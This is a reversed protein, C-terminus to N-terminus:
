GFIPGLGLRAERRSCSAHAHFASAGSPSTPQSGGGLSSGRWPGPWAMNQFRLKFAGTEFRVHASVRSFQEQPKPYRSQDDDSKEDEDMRGM